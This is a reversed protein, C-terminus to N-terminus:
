VVGVTLQEQDPDELARDHDHGVQGPRQAPRHRQLEHRHGRVARGGGGGADHADELIEVAVDGAPVHQDDLVDDVGAQGQGPQQAVQGGPLRGAELHDRQQALRIRGLHLHRYPVDPEVDRVLEDHAVSKVVGLPVTPQWMDATQLRLDVGASAPYSVSGLGAFRASCGPRSPRQLTLAAQQRGQTSEGARHVTRYVASSGGSPSLDAGTGALDPPRPWGSRDGQLWMSRLLKKRLHHTQSARPKSTTSTTGASNRPLPPKASTSVELASAWISACLKLLTVTLSLCCVRSM